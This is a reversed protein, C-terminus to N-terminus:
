GLRILRLRDIGSEERAERLAAVEFREGPEVTGAPLQIGAAPHRFVLLEAAPGSGRTIFATVKHLAPSDTV